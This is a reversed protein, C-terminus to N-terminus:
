RNFVKRIFMDAISKSDVCIQELIKSVPRTQLLILSSEAPLDRDIAWELDQPVKYHKELEVALSTIKELEIKTLCSHEQMEIPVDAIFTGEPGCLVQRTKRNITQDVKLSKKDVIFRDPSIDGGVVSEGLGWNGEIVVTDPDGTTPHVTFAVGSVRANVMKLVAVGINSGSDFEVSDEMGISLRKLTEKHRDQRMRYAIAQSTFTSSWCRIIQCIVNDPGRVNLYTELQGPMSVLGSSRIAVPVNEMLCKASLEQYSETIEMDLEAPMKHELILNRLHKAIKKNQMYDGLDAYNVGKLFTCIKQKLGTEQLFSIYADISLAFGPPVPLGLSAMEGLNACKRGVKDQDYQNLEDLWFVKKDEM